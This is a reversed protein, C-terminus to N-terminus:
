YKLFIGFVVVWIISTGLIAGNRTALIVEGSGIYEAAWVISPGVLGFIALGKPPPSMKDTM